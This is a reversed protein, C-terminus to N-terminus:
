PAGDHCNNFRGSRWLRLLLIVKQQIHFVEAHGKFRRVPINGGDVIEVEVQARTFRQPDHPFGSGPFRLGGKRQHAQQSSVAHNAAGSFEVTTFDKVQRLVLQVLQAGFLDRHNELIRHGRQIRIHAYALLQHFDQHQVFAQTFRFSKFLRDFHQIRHFHRFCTLTHAHERMLKRATHTLAHHNRHRQQAPWLQQNGIFRGGRQVNGNLRLDHGQQVLQLALEVRRNDHDGVVQAHHCADAVFHQHHIGTTGHFIAFRAIDEILRRM